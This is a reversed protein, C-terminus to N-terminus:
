WSRTMASCSAFTPLRCACFLVFLSVCTVSVGRVFFYLYSVFTCACVLERETLPAAAANTGAGAADAADAAAAMAALSEVPDSYFPINGLFSYEHNNSCGNLKERNSVREHTLWLGALIPASPAGHARLDVIGQAGCLAVFGNQRCVVQHTRGIVCFGFSRTRRRPPACFPGAGTHGPKWERSGHAVPKLTGWARTPTRPTSRTIRKSRSLGSRSARPRGSRSASTRTAPASDKSEPEYENM